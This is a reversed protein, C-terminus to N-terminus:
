DEEDAKNKLIRLKEKLENRVDDFPNVSIKPKEIVKPAPPPPPPMSLKSQAYTVQNSNAYDPTLKVNNRNPDYLEQQLDIIDRRLSKPSSRQEEEMKKLEFNHILIEFESSKNELAYIKINLDNIGTQISNISDEIYNPIQTTLYDMITYVSNAIIDIREELSIESKKRPMNNNLVDALTNM